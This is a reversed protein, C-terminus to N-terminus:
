RGEVKLLDPRVELVRIHNEGSAAAAGRTWRATTPVNADAPGAVGVVATGDPRFEITEPPRRTPPFDPWTAPRYAKVGPTDDATSRVWQQFLHPSEAPM